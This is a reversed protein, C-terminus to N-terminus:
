LNLGQTLMREIQEPPVPRSIFYGQVLNCNHQQLFEMQERTEVGEAVVSLKLTQAMSIITKAIAADAQNGLIDTIFSRDIKLRDIPFHKLYSLSSYGTGFDDIALEIGMQKLKALRETNQAANHMITSETIELELCQPSLGSEMLTAAIMEDLGKQNFQRGSLNVSMRVPPLGKDQWKRSQRCATQLVWEGIPIIDGTEEALSIFRDPSVLGMEPHNWRLLAEVGIIRGEAADVLPQYLLFFERRELAKRLANEMKLRETAKVNMEPCFFKFTNREQGKIQHMALEAHKLLTHSDTGDDPYVAIGISATTYIEHNDINIPEALVGLIKKAVISIREADGVGALIIAFDDSGLRALSDSERMCAKLRIAVNQLMIDGSRYGLTENVTKFRDLDLYLVGIQQRDRNAQMVQQKMRDHLQNRNPLGTLTDYNILQQIESEARIRATIDVATGIFLRLKGHEKDHLEGMSSIVIEGETATNIRFNFNFPLGKRSTEFIARRLHPRDHPNVMRFLAKPHIGGYQTPLIGFIQCLEDSLSIRGNTLDWEWSGIRAIQCAQSLRTRSNCLSQQVHALQKKLRNAELAQATVAQLREALTSDNILCDFAGKALMKAANGADHPHTIMICPLQKSNSSKNIFSPHVAMDPMLDDTIILEPPTSSILELASDCDPACLVNCGSTSLVHRATEAWGMAGGIILIHAQEPKEKAQESM